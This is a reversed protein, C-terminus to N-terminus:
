IDEIHTHESSLYFCKNGAVLFCEIDEESLGDDILEEYTYLDGTAKKSELYDVLIDLAEGEHNGLVYYFHVSYNNLSIKYVNDNYFADQTNIIENYYEADQIIDIIDQGINSKEIILDKIKEDDENDFDDENLNLEKLLVDLDYSFIQEDKINYFYVERRRYSTSFGFYKKNFM